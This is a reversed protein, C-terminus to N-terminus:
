KKIKYAIAEFMSGTEYLPHDFGKKKITSPSNPPPVRKNEILNQMDKVAIAGVKHAESELTVNKDLFNGIAKDIQTQWGRNEDAALDVFPREPINETGFHNAIAYDLIPIGTEPNYGADEHIGVSVELDRVSDIQKKFAKYKLNSDQLYASM